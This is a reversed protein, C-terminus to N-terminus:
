PRKNILANLFPSVRMPEEFRSGDLRYGPTYLLQREPIWKKDAWRIPNENPWIIPKDAM